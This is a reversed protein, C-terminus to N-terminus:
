ADPFSSKKVNEKNRISLCLLVTASNLTTTITALRSRPSHQSSCGRATMARQEERAARGPRACGTPLWVREGGGSSRYSICLHERKMRAPVAKSAPIADASPERKYPQLCGPVAEAVQPHGKIAASTEQCLSISLPTPCPHAQTEQGKKRPITSSKLKQM